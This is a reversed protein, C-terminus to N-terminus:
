RKSTALLILPDAGTVTLTSVTFSSAVLGGASVGIYESESESQAGSLKSIEIFTSFSGVGLSVLLVFIPVFDFGLLALFAGAVFFSFVVNWYTVSTIRIKQWKYLIM